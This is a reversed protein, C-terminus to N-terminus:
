SYLGNLPQSHHSRRRRKLLLLKRQILNQPHEPEKRKLFLSLNLISEKLIILWSKSFTEQMSTEKWRVVYFKQM